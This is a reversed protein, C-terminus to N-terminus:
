RVQVFYNKFLFFVIFIVIWLYFWRLLFLLRGAKAKAEPIELNNYIWRTRRTHPLGLFNNRISVSYKAKLRYRLYIVRLLCYAAFVLPLLQIYRVFIDKIDPPM